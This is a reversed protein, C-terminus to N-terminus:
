ATTGRWHRDRVNLHSTSWRVGAGEGVWDYFSELFSHGVIKQSRTAGPHEVLKEALCRADSIVPLAIFCFRAQVYSLCRSLIRVDSTTLTASRSWVRLNFPSHRMRIMRIRAITNMTRVIRFERRVHHLVISWLEDPLARFTRLKKRCRASRFAAQVLIAQDSGKEEPNPAGSAVLSFADSASSPLAGRTVSTFM